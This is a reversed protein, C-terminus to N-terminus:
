VSGWGGGACEVGDVSSSAPFLWSSLGVKPMMWQILIYVAVGLSLWAFTKLNSAPKVESEKSVVDSENM